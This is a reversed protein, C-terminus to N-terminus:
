YLLLIIASRELNAVLNGTDELEFSVGVRQKDAVFGGIIEFDEYYMYM